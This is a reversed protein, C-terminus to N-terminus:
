TIKIQDNYLILHRIEPVLGVYEGTLKVLFSIWWIMIKWKETESTFINALDSTFINASDSTFM